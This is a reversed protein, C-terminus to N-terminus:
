ISYIVQLDEASAKLDNQLHRASMQIIPLPNRIRHAIAGAMSGVAALKDKKILENQMKSIEKKLNHSELCRRITARLLDRPFPKSRFLTTYPFLTSRPPRRIM